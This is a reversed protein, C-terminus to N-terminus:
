RDPPRLRTESALMLSRKSDNTGLGGKRSSDRIFEQRGAHRYDAWSLAERPNLRAFAKRSIKQRLVVNGAVWKELTEGRHIPELFHQVTIRITVHDFIISEGAALSDFDTSVM